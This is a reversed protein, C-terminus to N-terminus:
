EVISTDIWTLLEDVEVPSLPVGVNQQRLAAARTEDDLIDMSLVHGLNEQTVRMIRDMDSEGPLYRRRNIRQRKYVQGDLALFDTEVLAENEYIKIQHGGFDPWAAAAEAAEEPIPRTLFAQTAAPCHSLEQTPLVVVSQEHERTMGHEGPTGDLFKQDIAAIFRSADSPTEIEPSTM